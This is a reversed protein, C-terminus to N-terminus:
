QSFSFPWQFGTQTQQQQKKAVVEDLWQVMSGNCEPIEDFPIHGSEIVNISVKSNVDEALASYFQGVPGELPTVNDKTGWVLHIPIDQLFTEHDQHIEMPTKGPDNTYIQNLVEVSGAGQAPLYFSDVLADDVRAEPDPACQYLGVLANQLLEKTVVKELAYTLLPINDFILTDFLDFVFTLVARQVSKFSPDRLINRTNMGIGCNYMGIGQIKSPIYAPSSSLEDDFGGTTAATLAVLSGLSNGMVVVGGGNSKKLYKQAYADVMKAWLSISYEVGQARGPKASKGQGLLDVAHVTYGSQTLYNTTERWYVTSCGFGHILIVDPKPKSFLSSGSAPQRQAVESYCEHGLFDWIRPTIVPEITKSSPTITTTATLMSRRAHAPRQQPAFALGQCIWVSSLFLGATTLAVIPSASRFM